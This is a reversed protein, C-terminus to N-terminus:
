AKSGDKICKLPCAQMADRVIAELKRV